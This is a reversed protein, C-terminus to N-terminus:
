SDPTRGIASRPGAEFSQTFTEWKARSVSVSASAEPELVSLQHVLVVHHVPQQLGRAPITPAWNVFCVSRQHVVTTYAKVM